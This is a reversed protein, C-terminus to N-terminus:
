FFFFIKGQSASTKAAPPLTPSAEAGIAHMM